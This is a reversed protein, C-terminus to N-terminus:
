QNLVEILEKTNMMRAQNEVMERLAERHADINRATIADEIVMVRFDSKLADLTTARVCWDTQMGCIVLNGVKRSRLKSEFGTDVFSSIQHKTIVTEGEQPTVNSHIDAGFTNPLFFSADQKINEHRVHIILLNRRRFEELLEKAKFSAKNSEFLEYKGGSFYDNQIDILVLATKALDM